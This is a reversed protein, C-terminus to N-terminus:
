LATNWEMSEMITRKERNTEQVLRDVIHNAQFYVAVITDHKEAGIRVLRSLAQDNKAPNWSVDIFGCVRARVLTIGEGGARISVGMGHEIAGSQFNEVLVDRAKSSLGGHFCEWGPRDMLKKLIQVHESFVITPEMEAECSQMWEEVAAVKAQSLMSRIRSLEEISPLNDRSLMAEQVAKVIEEDTNWPRETFYEEVRVNYLAKRRAKEDPGLGREYPNQVRRSPSPAKTVDAWAARVALMRHVAENVARITKKDMEVEIIQEIVPPLEELVDKRLRVVLVKKLRRHLDDRLEGQPARRAGKKNDYWDRFIRYYNNWSGFAARELGLSVLVEWFEPPKGECPTGSLGYVYGGSGWIARRLGRWNKTRTTRPNKFAHCEDSLLLVDRPIDPIPNPQWCGECGKHYINAQEKGDICALFTKPHREAATYHECNEPIPGDYRRRGMGDKKKLSRLERWLHRCGSCPTGPLVGYSGIFVSGPSRMIDPAYSRWKAQTNAYQVKLDPRWKKIERGWNRKVSAPCFILNGTDARLASVAAIVTKGCGMQHGILCSRTTGIVKSDAEQFPRLQLHTGDSKVLPMAELRARLGNDRYGECLSCAACILRLPMEYFEGEGALVRDTCRYCTGPFRNLTLTRPAAVAYSL